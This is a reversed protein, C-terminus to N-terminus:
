TTYHALLTLVGVVTILPWGIHRGRTVIADAIGMALHVTGIGLIIAPAAIEGYAALALVAAVLLWLASTWRWTFRTVQRLLPSQMIAVDSTLLPGILRQEGSISHVGAAIACLAAAMVLMFTSDLYEM